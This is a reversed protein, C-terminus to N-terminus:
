FSDIFVVMSQWYLSGFDTLDKTQSPYGTLIAFAEATYGGDLQGYSGFLKAFVKELLIGWM